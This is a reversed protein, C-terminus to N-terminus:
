STALRTKGTAMVRSWTTLQAALAARGDSTIEYPHRRDQVLRPQRV